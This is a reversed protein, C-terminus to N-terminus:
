ALAEDVFLHRPLESMVRLVDLHTIGQESLEDIMRLRTRESTMGVGLQNSTQHPNKFM